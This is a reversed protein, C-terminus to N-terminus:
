RRGYVAVTVAGTVELEAPLAGARRRLEAADAHFASPGMAALALQTERDPRMTWAVRESARRAFGDGLRRALREAKRPDVDLLGLAARLEALHEREPTAVVLVGGPALVRHLEPGNRPAFVCLVAGAVGDRLPLPGWVDAGVAAARPHARAARRLAARSVDLAIGRRTPARELAAALHHATGAGVEVLAGDGAGDAAEAVAATLPDFLGGALVRERAAVMEATDGAPARGGALLSLYGQRAVDFAHGAACRVVRGGEARLPGACHPCRLLALVAALAEPLEDPAQATM